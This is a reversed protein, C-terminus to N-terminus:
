LGAGGVCADGYKAEGAGAVVWGVCIKSVGTRSLVSAFATTWTGADEGESWARPGTAEGEGVPDRLAMDFAGGPVVERGDRSGTVWAPLKLSSEGASSVDSSSSELGIELDSILGDLKRVLFM